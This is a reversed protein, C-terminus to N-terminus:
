LGLKAQVQIEEEVVNAVLVMVIGVEAKHPKAEAVKEAAVEQVMLAQGVVMVAQTEKDQLEEAEVKTKMEVVVQVVVKAV